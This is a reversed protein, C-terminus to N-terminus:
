EKSRSSGAKDIWIVALFGIILLIIAFAFETNLHPLNWNYGIPKLKKRPDDPLYNSAPSTYSMKYAKDSGFVSVSLLMLSILLTFKSKKM